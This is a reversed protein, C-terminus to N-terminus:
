RSLSKLPALGAVLSFAELATPVLCEQLQSKHTGAFLTAIILAPVTM